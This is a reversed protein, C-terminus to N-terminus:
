MMMFHGRVAARMVSIRAWSSARRPAMLPQAPTAVGTGPRAEEAGEERRRGAHEWGEFVGPFAADALAGGGLDEAGVDLLVQAKELALDAVAGDAEM